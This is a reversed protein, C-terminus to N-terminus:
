PVVSWWTSELLLAACTVRALRPLLETSYVYRSIVHGHRARQAGRGHPPMKPSSCRAKAAAVATRPLAWLLKYIQAGADTTIRMWLMEQCASGAAQARSSSEAGM